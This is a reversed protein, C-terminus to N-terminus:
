GDTGGKEEEGGESIVAMTVSWTSSFLRRM